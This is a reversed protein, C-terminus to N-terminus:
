CMGIKKAWSHNQYSILAQKPEHKAKPRYINSKIKLMPETHRYNGFDYIVNRFRLMNSM